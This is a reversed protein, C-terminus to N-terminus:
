LKFYSELRSNLFRRGFGSKLYKERKIADKENMCAEFYILKLPRRPKTAAVSGGSHEKLRGELDSTFGVYLDGDKLSRLVYTYFM